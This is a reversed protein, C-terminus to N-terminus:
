DVTTLSKVWWALRISGVYFGCPKSLKQTPSCMWMSPPRFSNTMWDHGVRQSGVSQLGGAKRDMPNKLCSYQLPSGNGEGLSRGLGPILALDRANCASEKDVSGGPFNPPHHVGLGLPCFNRHKPDKQVECEISWRTTWRCGKYYEECYIPSHLYINGQTKHAM